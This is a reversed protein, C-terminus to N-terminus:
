GTPCRVGESIQLGDLLTEQTRKRVLDAVGFDIGIMLAM